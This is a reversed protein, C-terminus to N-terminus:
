RREQDRHDSAPPPRIPDDKVASASGNRNHFAALEKEEKPSPTSSTMEEEIPLTRRSGELAVGLVINEELPPRATSTPSSPKENDNSAHSTAPPVGARSSGPELHGNSLNDSAKEVAARLPKADKSNIAASTDEVEHQLKSTSSAYKEKENSCTKSTKLQKDVAKAKKSEMIDSDNLNSDADVVSKSHSTSKTVVKSDSKSNLSPPAAPHDGKSNSTSPPEVKPDPTADSSPSAAKSDAKLESSTEVAKGDNKSDPVSAAAPKNDPDENRRTSRSHSKLKDEGNIKYSPEILLFPRGNAARPRSYIPESFPINEMDADSYIKQVTRIPTALRARHHSIVRLLDMLIAELLAQNEPNINDLFVRRHLRQQEVQPNKALVKRMDAVINERGALTLLVTGLGGATLWRQTSFGLLEMFLSLAAVWVATYVAKGAFQFGMHLLVNRSHRLLPGLGWIAFAIVGIAPALQLTCPSRCVTTYLRTSMETVHQLVSVENSQGPLLSRCIFANYRFPVYRISKRVSESLRLSSSDLRLSAYSSLSVHPMLRSGSRGLANRAFYACLGCAKFQNDVFKANVLFCHNRPVSLNGRPAQLSGPFAAM